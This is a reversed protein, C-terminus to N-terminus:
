PTVDYQSLRLLMQQLETYPSGVCLEVCPKCQIRQTYIITTKCCACGRQFHGPTIEMWVFFGVIGVITIVVITKYVNM